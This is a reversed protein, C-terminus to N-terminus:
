RTPTDPESVAIHLATMALGDFVAFGQTCGEVKQALGTRVQHWHVRTTFVAAQLKGQLAIFDVVQHALMTQICQDRVALTNRKM